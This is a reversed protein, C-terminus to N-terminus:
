EAKIPKASKKKDEIKDEIKPEESVKGQVEKYQEMLNGLPNEAKFPRQLKGSAEHGLFYIQFLPSSVLNTPNLLSQLLLPQLYGWKYHIGSTILVGILVQQLAKKM